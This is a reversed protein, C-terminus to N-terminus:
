AIKYKEGLMMKLKNINRIIINKNKTATYELQNNFFKLVSEALKKSEGSYLKHSEMPVYYLSDYNLLKWTSIDVPLQKVKLM